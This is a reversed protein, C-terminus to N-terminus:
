VLLHLGVGKAVLRPSKEPLCCRPGGKVGVEQFADVNSAGEEEGGKDELAAEEGWGRGLEQRDLGDEAGKEAVTIEGLLSGEGAKAQLGSLTNPGQGPPLPPPPHWIDLGERCRHRRPRHSEEERGRRVDPPHDGHDEELGCIWPPSIVRCPNDRGRVM